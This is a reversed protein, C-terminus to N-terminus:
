RIEEGLGDVCALWQGNPLRHPDITHMGQANWGRGSAGLGSLEMPTEAYTQPTLETIKFALLRRGYSISGDQAFR